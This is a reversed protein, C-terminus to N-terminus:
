EHESTPKKGIIYFVGILFSNQSLKSFLHDYEGFFMLRGFTRHIGFGLNSGFETISESHPEGNVEFEETEFSLNVGTLPYVGFHETLEFVYHLNFNVESLKTTVEEGNHTETKKFFHSFEPGFCVRDNKFNYYGRFHAGFSEIDDGYIGAAGLSWSQGLLSTQALVFVVVFAILFRNM